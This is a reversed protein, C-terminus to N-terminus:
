RTVAMAILAAVAAMIMTATSRISFQRHFRLVGVGVLECLMGFCWLPFYIGVPAFGFPADPQGLVKALGPINRATWSGGFGHRKDPLITAAVFGCELRLFLTGSYPSRLELEYITDPNALHHIHLALCGVSAAFCVTALTYRIFKAM